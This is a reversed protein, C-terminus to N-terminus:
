EQFSLVQSICLFISSIPDVFVLLNWFSGLMHEFMYVFCRCLLLDPITRSLINSLKGGFNVIKVTAFTCLANAVYLKLAFVDQKCIYM